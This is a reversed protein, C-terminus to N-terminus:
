DAQARAKGLAYQDAGRGGFFRHCNELGVDFGYPEVEPNAGCVLRSILTGATALSCRPADSRHFRSLRVISLECSPCGPGRAQAPQPEWWSPGRTLYLHTTTMEHVEALFPFHVETKGPGSKTSQANGAQGGM